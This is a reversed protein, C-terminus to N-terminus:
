SKKLLPGENWYRPLPKQGYIGGGITEDKGLKGGLFNYANRMPEM